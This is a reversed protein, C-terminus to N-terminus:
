SYISDVSSAETILMYNVEMRMYVAYRGKLPHYKAECIDISLNSHCSSM